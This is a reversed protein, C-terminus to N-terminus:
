TEVSAAYSLARPKYGRRERFFAWRHSERSLGASAARGTRATRRPKRACQFTLGSKEYRLWHADACRGM